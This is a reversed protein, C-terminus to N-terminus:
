FSLSVLFSYYSFAHQFLLTCPIHFSYSFRLTLKSLAFYVLTRPLVAQGCKYTKVNKLNKIM